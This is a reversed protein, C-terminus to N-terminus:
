ALSIIRARLVKRSTCLDRIGKWIEENAVMWLSAVSMIQLLLLLLFSVLVVRKVVWVTRCQSVSGCKVFAGTSQMRCNIIFYTMKDNNLCCLLAQWKRKVPRAYHGCNPEDLKVHKAIEIVEASQVVKKIDLTQALSLWKFAAYKKCRLVTLKFGVLFNTTLSDAKTKEKALGWTVKLNVTFCINIFLWLWASLEGIWETLDGHMKCLFSKTKHNSLPSLQCFAAPFKGCM